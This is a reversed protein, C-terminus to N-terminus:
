SAIETTVEDSQTVNHSLKKFKEMEIECLIEMVVKNFAEKAKESVPMSSLAADIM